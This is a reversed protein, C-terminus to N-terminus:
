EDFVSTTLAIAGPDIAETPGIAVDQAPTTLEVRQVGAVHLAAIIATRSLDRGIRRHRALLDDLAARATTLILAADPGRYLVLEAAVDVTVISASVVSVSDTLPRVEDDALVQRVAEVIDAAVTGDGESGLLAVVVEGPEPSSAAADVLSAEASLAHFVYATAPGAVSFSDPALLVRRRLRDDDEYVAPTGLAEDAEEILLRTLGFLAALNDLDAGRAYGVMTARAADNVRQFLITKEYAAIELVKIAPDASTLADFGPVLAQMRATMQALVAEYNVPEVIDPPPLRSLDVATSAASSTPPLAM